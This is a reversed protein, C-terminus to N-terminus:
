SKTDSKLILHNDQGTGSSKTDSKLILHNDQGTGSKSAWYGVRTVEMLPWLRQGKRDRGDCSGPM